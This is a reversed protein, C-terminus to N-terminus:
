NTVKQPQWEQAHVQGQDRLGPLLLLHLLDGHRPGRLLHHLGVEPLLRHLQLLEQPLQGRPHGDERGRVGSFCLCDSTFIQWYGSPLALVRVKGECRPCCSRDGKEGQIAKVDMWGKYDSKMRHGFKVAYCHRCYAQLFLLSPLLGTFLAVYFCELVEFSGM